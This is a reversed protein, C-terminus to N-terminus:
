WTTRRVRAGKREGRMRGKNVRQQFYANIGSNLAHVGTDPQQIKAQLQNIISAQSPTTRRLGAKCTTCKLSCSPPPPLPLALVCHAASGGGGPPQCRCLGNAVWEARM